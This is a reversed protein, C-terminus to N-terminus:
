VNNVLWQGTGGDHVTAVDECARSSHKAHHRPRRPLAYHLDNEM